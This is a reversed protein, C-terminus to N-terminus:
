TLILLLAVNVHVFAALSNTRILFFLYVVYFSKTGALSINVFLVAKFLAFIAHCEEQASIFCPAVSQIM